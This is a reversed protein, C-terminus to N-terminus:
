NKDTTRQPLRFFNRVEDDEGINKSEICRVGSTISLLECFMEIEAQVPFPSVLVSDQLQYLGMERLRRHLAERESKHKEPIDFVVLRWSGDWQKRDHQLIGRKMQDAFVREKGKDTLRLTYEGEHKTPLLKIYGRKCLYDKTRLFERRRFFGRRSGIRGIAGFMNPAVVGVTVIGGLLALLLITKGMRMGAEKAKRVV